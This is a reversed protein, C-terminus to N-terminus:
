VSVDRDLETVWKTVTVTKAVCRTVEVDGDLSIGWEGNIWVSFCFGETKDDGITFVIARHFGHDDGMESIEVIEADGRKEGLELIALEEADDWSLFKKGEKDILM